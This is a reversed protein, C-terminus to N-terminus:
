RLFVPVAKDELGHGETRHGAKDGHGVAKRQGTPFGAAPEKEGLRLDKDQKGAQM